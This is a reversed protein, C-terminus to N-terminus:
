ALNHELGNADLFKAMGARYERYRPPLKEFTGPDLLRDVQQAVESETLQHHDPCQIRPLAFADCFSDGRSCNSFLVAPNGHALHIMNGHLRWGIAGISEDILKLYPAMDYEYLTPVSKQVLPISRTLFNDKDQQAAVVPELGATALRKVLLRVNAKQGHRVTVVVKKGSKKPKLSWTPSLSRFMTPCGTMSVNKIGAENLAEATRPDRASGLKCSAHIIRIQDATDPEFSNDDGYHRTTGVGLPIIPVKIKKLDEVTFMWRGPKAMQRYWLNTGTIIAADTRNIADIDSQTIPKRPDIRISNTEDFRVIRRISDVIFLDGVNETSVSPDIFSIVRPM